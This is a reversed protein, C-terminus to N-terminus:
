QLAYFQQKGNVQFREFVARGRDSTLWRMFREANRFEDSRASRVLTVAYVNRLQPSKVSHKRLELRHALVEFTASDSLAYAKLESASRLLHGMPQGMSLYQPNTKPDVGALKWFRLEMNHTASQDGRSCFPARAQHIHAFAEAPTRAGAVRAPDGPPGVIIFENFMFQRYAIARGSKVFAKEAEPDHTLTLDVVGRAALRLAQGSGVALVRSEIGTEEAFADTLQKLLGSNELSTTTALVFLQPPRSEPACALTTLLIACWMQSSVSRFSGRVNEEFLRGAAQRSAM